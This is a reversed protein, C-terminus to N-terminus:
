VSVSVRFTEPIEVNWSSTFIPVPAVTANKSTLEPLIPIAEVCGVAFNNSTSPVRFTDPIEVNLSLTDIAPVVFANYRSASISCRKTM